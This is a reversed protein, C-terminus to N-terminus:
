AAEGPEKAEKPGGTLRKVETLFEGPSLPKLMFSQAGASTAEERFVRTRYIESCLLIPVEDADFLRRIERCAEFGNKGHILIDLIVMAPLRGGMLQLCEDVSQLQTVEYGAKELIMPRPLAQPQDDHVIYIAKM